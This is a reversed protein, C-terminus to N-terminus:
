MGVAGRALREPREAADFGPLGLGLEDGSSRRPRRWPRRRRRRGTRGAPRIAARRRSRGARRCPRRGSSSLTITLSCLSIGSTPSGAGSICVGVRASTPPSTSDMSVRSGRARHVAVIQRVDQALLGDDEEEGRRREALAADAAGDHVHGLLDLRLVAVCGREDVLLDVDVVLWPGLVETRLHLLVPQGGLGPEEDDVFVALDGRM